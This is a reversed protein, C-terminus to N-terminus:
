PHPPHGREGTSGPVGVHPRGAADGQRRHVPGRAAQLRRHLPPGEHRDAEPRQHSTLDKVAGEILSPQATAKGVGMNIVIKEFRPAQMVNALGLEDMLRSRIEDHYRQKLRPM